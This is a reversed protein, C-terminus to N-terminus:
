IAKKSRLAAGQVLKIEYISQLDKTQKEILQLRFVAQDVDLDLFKSFHIVLQKRLEISKFYYSHNAGQYLRLTSTTDGLVLIVKSKQFSIAIRTDLKINLTAIAVANFQFKGAREVRLQPQRYSKSNLSQSQTVVM